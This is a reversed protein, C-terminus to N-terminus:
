ILNQGGLCCCRGKDERKFFDKKQSFGNGPELVGALFPFFCFPGPASFLEPGTVQGPYAPYQEPLIVDYSDHFEMMEKQETILEGFEVFSPFNQSCNTFTLFFIQFSNAFKNQALQFQLFFCYFVPYLTFFFFFKLFHKNLLYQFTFNM